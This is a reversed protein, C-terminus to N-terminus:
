DRAEISYGTEPRDGADLDIPVVPDRLPRSAFTILGRRQACALCLREDAHAIFIEGDLIRHYYDQGAAMMYCFTKESGVKLAVRWGPEHLFLRPLPPGNAEADPSPPLPNRLSM